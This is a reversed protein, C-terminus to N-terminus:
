LNFYSYTTGIIPIATPLSVQLNPAGISFNRRFIEKLSHAVGSQTPKGWYNGGSLNSVRLVSTSTPRFVSNVTPVTVFSYSFHNLNQISYATTGVSVGNRFGNSAYILDWLMPIQANDNWNTKCQIVGVEYSSFDKDVLADIIEKYNYAQNRKTTPIRNGNSDNISINIKDMSYDPRSPFTIAILDSETNSIFTGYSVKLSDRIPEPILSKSSKIVVTNTNILCLNLYWCVLSEWATGGGSVSSQDRVGSTSRFIDSLSDGLNIINNANISSLRTRIDNQWDSAWVKNFTTTTFLKQVAQERLYEVISQPM